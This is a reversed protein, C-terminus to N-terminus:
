AVRSPFYFFTRQAPPTAPQNRRREIGVGAFCKYERRKKKNTALYHLIASDLSLYFSVSPTDSQSSIRKTGPVAVLDTKKQIRDCAHDMYLATPLVLCHSMSVVGCVHRRLLAKQVQNYKMMRTTVPDIYTCPTTIKLTM